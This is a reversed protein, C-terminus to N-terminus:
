VEFFAYASEGFSSFDGAAGSQVAESREAALVGCPRLCGKFIDKARVGNKLLFGEFPGLIVM